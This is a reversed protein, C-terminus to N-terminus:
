EKRRELEREVTNVNLLYYINEVTHDFKKRQDFENEIELINNEKFDSFIAM